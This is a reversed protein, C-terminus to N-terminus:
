TNWRSNTIFRGIEDLLDGSNVPASHANRFRASVEDAGVGEVDEQSSFVNHNGDSEHVGIQSSSQGKSEGFACRLRRYKKKDFECRLIKAIAAAADEDEQKRAIHLREQLHKVQLQPAQKEM